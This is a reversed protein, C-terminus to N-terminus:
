GFFSLAISIILLVLSLVILGYVLRGVWPSPCYKVRRVPFTAAIIAAGLLFLISVLALVHIAVAPM